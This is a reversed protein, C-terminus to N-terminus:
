NMGGRRRLRRENAEQRAITKAGDGAYMIFVALTAKHLYPWM